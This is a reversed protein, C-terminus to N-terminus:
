QQRQPGHRPAVASHKTARMQTVPKVLAAAYKVLGDVLFQVHGEVSFNNYV